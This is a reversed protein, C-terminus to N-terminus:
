TGSSSLDAFRNVLKKGIGSKESASSQGQGTKQTTFGVEEEEEGKM